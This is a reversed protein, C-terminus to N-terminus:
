AQPLHLLTIAICGSPDPARNETCRHLAQVWLGRRLYGNRDQSAPKRKGKRLVWVCLFFLAMSLLSLAMKWKGKRLMTLGHHTLFKSEVKEPKLWSLSSEWYLGVSTKANGSPWQAYSIITERIHLLFQKPLQISINRGKWKCSKSRKSRIQPM